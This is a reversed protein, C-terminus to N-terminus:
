KSRKYSYKAREKYQKEQWRDVQGQTKGIVNVISVFSTLLKSDEFFPDREHWKERKLVTGDEKYYTWTGRKLDRKFFIQKSIKGSKYFYVWEGDKIMSGSICNGLALVKSSDNDYYVKTNFTRGCYSNQAKSINIFLLSNLFFLLIILRTM